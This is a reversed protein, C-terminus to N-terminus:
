LGTRLRGLSTLEFEIFYATKKDNRNDSNISRRLRSNVRNSGIFRVKWCCGNYELGATTDLSESDEISYRESAFFQWRDSIPWNANVTLQDVITNEAGAFGPFNSRYYGVQINKRNDDKPQYGVAFRATRLESEDHDYQLFSYTTWPGESETRVEALLDGLGKEIPAQGNFLSVELDDLLYLQGISAVLRQDGTENDLIKSTVGITVQNTDGVRDEGFFRNARFINSFNNLSVQSTDFIPVDSQDEEPAYVYYIRPELTQLAGSGFWNTNREFFLGSDVALIPVTFSPSDENDGVVNNLSYTRSHLSLTPKVYGWLSEFPVQVYPNIATRTGDIRRRTEGDVQFEADNGDFNVISASLGYRIGYPGDPLNTSMWLSPLRELPARLANVRDDIIQYQNARARVRFYEHSYNLQVDRPVFTASFYRVDNRLDNFYDIDSVDNYNIQASLNDTIQQSHQLTLLSRDGNIFDDGEARGANLEAEYLEDNPLIEGYIYTSSNTTRRRYEAGLQAGRETYYRPTITADQNKAINWYWPLELVNGSEEDSGFGPTLLGTKRDKNLPFSIYPTYFIPVGKFRITAGRARGVGGTQDLELERAGIVVSENGEPCTTYKANELRVFGEGELNVVDASGRSQIQVTDVGEARTLRQSLKFSSNTMSGIQTPVHVDISDSALYDGKESIMEVSGQAVVRESARYYQLEDAVITQRGQTVEANGKLTVLDDGDAEVNDAELSIPYQGDEDSTLVPSQFQIESPKCACNVGKCAALANPAVVSTALWLAAANLVLPGLKFIRKQSNNKNSRLSRKLM